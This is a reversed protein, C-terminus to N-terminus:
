VAAHAVIELLVSTEQSTLFFMCMVFFLSLVFSDLWRCGRGTVSIWQSIFSFVESSIVRLKEYVFGCFTINNMDHVHKCLIYIINLLFMEHCFVYTTCLSRCTEASIHWRWPVYLSPTWNKSSFSNLLVGIQLTVYFKICSTCYTVDWLKL